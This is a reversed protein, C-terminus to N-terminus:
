PKWYRGRVPIHYKVFAVYEEWAKEAVHAHGWSDQQANKFDRTMDKLWSIYGQMRKAEPMFQLAKTEKLFWELYKCAKETCESATSMFMAMNNFIVNIGQPYKPPALDFRIRRRQGMRVGALQFAADKFKRTMVNYYRKYFTEVALQSVSFGYERRVDKVANDVAKKEDKIIYDILRKSIQGGLRNAEERLIAVFKVLPIDDLNRYANKTYRQVVEEEVDRASLQYDSFRITM